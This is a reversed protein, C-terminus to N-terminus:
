RFPLTEVITRRAFAIDSTQFRIVSQSVHVLRGFDFGTGEPVLGFLVQLFLQHVQLGFQALEACLFDCAAVGRLEGFHLDIM